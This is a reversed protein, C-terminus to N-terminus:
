GVNSVCFHLTDERVGRGGGGRRVKYIWWGDNGNPLLVNFSLVSVGDEITPLPTNPAIVVPASCTQQTSCDLKTSMAATRGPFTGLFGSAVHLNALSFHTITAVFTLRSRLLMLELAAVRVPAPM